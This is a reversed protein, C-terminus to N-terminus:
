DQSSRKYAESYNKRKKTKARDRDADAILKSELKAYEPDSYPENAGSSALAYQTYPLSYM